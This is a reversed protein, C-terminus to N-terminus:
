EKEKLCFVPHRLFQTYRRRPFSLHKDLKLRAVGGAGGGCVRSCRCIGRQRGERNETFGVVGWGERIRRFRQLEREGGGEGGQVMGGQM